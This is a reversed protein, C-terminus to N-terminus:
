TLKKKSNSYCLFEEIFNQIETTSKLKVLSHAGSNSDFFATYARKRRPYTNWIWLLISNKGLLRSWTEYNKNCCPNQNICHQLTRKLAQWLCKSLSLDLWVIMDAQPWIHQQVRSSNGCVIWHNAATEKQILSFFDEDTRKTWNPLWYLDDLDVCKHGTLHSLKQGLFTKGCGSTGTVVIKKPLPSAFRKDVM